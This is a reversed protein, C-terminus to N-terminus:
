APQDLGLLRCIDARYKWGARRGNLVDGLYTPSVDLAAALEVQSMQRLTLAIKVRLAFYALEAESGKQAKKGTSQDLELLRCIDARYKWGPTLGSLIPYLRERPIGLKRALDAPRIGRRAMERKVQVIFNDIAVNSKVEIM